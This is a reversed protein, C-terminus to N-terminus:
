GLVLLLLVASALTSLLLSRREFAWAAVGSLAAVGILRYTAGHGQYVRGFAFGVATAVLLIAVLSTLRQVRATTGPTHAM